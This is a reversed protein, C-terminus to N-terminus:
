RFNLNYNFMIRNIKNKLNHYNCKGKEKRGGFSGMCREGSEKLNMSEKESITIKHINTHIFINYIYIHTHTCIGLCLMKLGYLAIMHISEPIVVQCHVVLQHARGQSYSGRGSGPKRLLRCNNTSPKTAKPSKKEMWNPMDTPIM